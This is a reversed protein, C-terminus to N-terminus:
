RGLRMTGKMTQLLISLNKNQSEDVKLCYKNDQWQFLLAVPTLIETGKAGQQRGPSPIVRVCPPVRKSNTPHFVTVDALLVGASGEGGWRGWKRTLVTSNM